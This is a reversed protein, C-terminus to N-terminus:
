GSCSAWDPLLCYPLPKDIYDKMRCDKLYQALESALKTDGSPPSGRRVVLEHEVFRRVALGCRYYYTGMRLFQTALFLSHLLSVGISSYVGIMALNTQHNRCLMRCSLLGSNTDLYHAFMRDNGSADDSSLLDISFGVMDMLRKKFELVDEHKALCGVCPDVCLGFKLRFV